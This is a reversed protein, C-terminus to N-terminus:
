AIRIAYPDPLYETHRESLWISRKDTDTVARQVAWGNPRCNACSDRLDFLKGHLSGRRRLGRRDRLQPGHCVAPM